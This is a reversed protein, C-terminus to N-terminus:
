RFIKPRTDRRAPNPIRGLLWGLAAGSAHAVPLSLRATLRLLGTLLARRNM